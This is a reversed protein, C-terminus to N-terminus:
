SARRRRRAALAMGALGVIPLLPTPDQGGAGVECVCMFGHPLNPDEPSGTPGNIPVGTCKFIEPDTSPRGVDNPDCFSSRGFLDNVDAAGVGIAGISNGAGDAPDGAGLMGASAVPTYVKRYYALIQCVTTHRAVIESEVFPVRRPIKDAFLPIALQGATGPVVLDHAGFGAGITTKSDGATAYITKEPSDPLYFLNYDTYGLAGGRILGGLGARGRADVFANSRLSALNASEILMLSHVAPVCIGGGSFTNNHIQTQNTSTQDTSLDVVFAGFPDHQNDKTAIMLNHHVNSGAKDRLLAWGREVDDILLNYSVEGTTSVELLWNFGWLV